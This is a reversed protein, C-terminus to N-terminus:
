FPGEYGMSILINKLRAVQKRLQDKDMMNQKHTGWCLNDARYNTRCDDLHRVAPLNEPNPIFATAVIRHISWTKKRGDKRLSIYPYGGRDLQWKMLGKAGKINGLNSVEYLGEYGVVDKWIEEM